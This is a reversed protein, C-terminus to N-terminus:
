RRDQNAGRNDNAKSPGSDLALNILLVNVRPEGLVGLQRGETYAGIKEKVADENWGRANAVRPAQLLANRVSIHPDLGSGSATVVDAPILVTEPLNNEARYQKVREQVTEILKRSTPGLNSGGSATADYGDGAASPRPHFYKPGTFPQALLGSGVIDGHRYVLSGDANAPFFGQAMAFVALPYLGCLLVVLIATM